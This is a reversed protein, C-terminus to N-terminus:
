KGCFLARERYCRAFHPDRLASERYKARGSVFIPNRDPFFEAVVGGGSIQSPNPSWPFNRSSGGGGSFRTPKQLDRFLSFFNWLSLKAARNSAIVSMCVSLRVSLCSLCFLLKTDDGEPKM